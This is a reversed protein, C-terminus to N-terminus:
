HNQKIIKGFFVSGVYTETLHDLVLPLNSSIGYILNSLRITDPLGKIELRNMNIKIDIPLESKLKKM